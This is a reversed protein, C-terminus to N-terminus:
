VTSGSRVELSDTNNILHLFANLPMPGQVVLRPIRKPKRKENGAAVMEEFVQRIADDVSVIPQFM